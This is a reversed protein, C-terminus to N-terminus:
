PLLDYALITMFEPFEVASVLSDLLGAATRVRSARYADGGTESEIRGLEEKLLGRFLKLSMTRGDALVASSRRHVRWRDRGPDAPQRPRVIGAVRGRAQAPAQPEAPRHILSKTGSIEPPGCQAAVVLVPKVSVTVELRPMRRWDGASQRPLQPASREPRPRVATRLRPLRWRM